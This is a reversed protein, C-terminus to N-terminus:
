YELSETGDELIKTAKPNTHKKTGVKWNWMDLIERHQQINVEVIM